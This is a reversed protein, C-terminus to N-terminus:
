AAPASETLGSFKEGLSKMRAVRNEKDPAIIGRLKKKVMGSMPKRAAMKM